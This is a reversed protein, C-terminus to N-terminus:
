RGAHSVPTGVGAKEATELSAVDAASELADDAMLIEEAPAEPAMFVSLELALSTSSEVVVATPIGRAKAALALSTPAMVALAQTEAAEM